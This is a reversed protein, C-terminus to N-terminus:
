LVEVLELGAKEAEFLFTERTMSGSAYRVNFEEGSLYDFYAFSHLDGKQALFHNWLTDMDGPPIAGGFQINWRRRAPAQESRKEEGSWSEVVLNKHEVSVPYSYDAYVATVGDPLTVSGDTSPFDDGLSFPNEEPAYNPTAM